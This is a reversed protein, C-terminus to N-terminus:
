WVEDGSSQGTDLMEESLHMVGGYEEKRDYLSLQPRHKSCYAEIARIMDDDELYFARTGTHEIDHILNVM